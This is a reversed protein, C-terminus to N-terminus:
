NFWGKIKTLLPEGPELHHFRDIRTAIKELISEQEEHKFPTGMLLPLAEEVNDVAWIHFQGQKISQLVDNHLALHRLNSRPIIVGQEGTFGQHACVYYFGEIKENLGGVAQVRGFQDVAGTVAIEQNIPIESLASVLASLEALSASDGDVESYSQEFVISAAFPLPEELKLESSLFAQMIMMGKAHLNGGLDAKREVDAIDGDGFHVVCSIRAPEGYPNPHGSIEVVTLGNVQGMKNGRTEILVQGDLIDDLARNTLYSERFYQKQLAQEIDQKEIRKGDCYHASESLVRTLWIPCLPVFHQEECERAGLTFLVKLSELSLRPLHLQDCTRNILGIYNTVNEDALKLESEFESYISLASFIEHDVYDLEAMQNRDGVIIFKTDVSFKYEGSLVLSPEKCTPNITENAIISKIRLWNVPNAIIFNSSIVVAKIDPQQLLGTTNTIKHNLKDYFVVGFLEEASITSSAVTSVDRKNMMETIIERHAANDPAKVVLLRSDKLACFQDIASSLRQQFQEYESTYLLSTNCESLLSDYQPTAHTWSISNM